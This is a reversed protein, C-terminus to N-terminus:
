DKHKNWFRIMSQLYNQTVFDEFKYVERLEVDGYLDMNHVDWFYNSLTENIVNVEFDRFMSNKEKVWITMSNLLEKEFLEKNFRRKFFTPLENFNM